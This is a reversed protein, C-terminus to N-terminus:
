IQARCRGKGPWPPGGIEGCTHEGGSQPWLLLHMPHGVGFPTAQSARLVIIAKAAPDAVRRNSACTSPELVTWHRRRSMNGSGSLSGKSRANGSIGEAVEPDAESAAFRSIKESDIVAFDLGFRRPMEDHWKDTLPAPCIVMVRRARSRLLLEQIVM